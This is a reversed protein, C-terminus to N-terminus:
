KRFRKFKEVQVLYDHPVLICAKDNNVEYHEAFFLRNELARAAVEFSRFGYGNATCCDEWRNGKLVKVFFIQEGGLETVVYAYKKGNIELEKVIKKMVKWLQTKRLHQLRILYTATLGAM